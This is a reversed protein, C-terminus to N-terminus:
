APQPAPPPSGSPPPEEPPPKRQNKWRDELDEPSGPIKALHAFQKERPHYQKFMQRLPEIAVHTYIATSDLSEHGLQRQVFPLVDKRHRAGEDLWDTASTHRISYLAIRKGFKQQFRPVYAVAFHTQLANRSLKGGTASVFFPDTPKRPGLWAEMRILYQRLDQVTYRDVTVVRDRLNKPRRIAIQRNALSVDSRLLQCLEGPRMASAYLVQFICRDRMKMLTSGSALGLLFKFESESLIPRPLSRGRRPPDIALAPNAELHKYDSLFGFWLIAVRLVDERTAPSLPSAAVAAQYAELHERTIENIRSASHARLFEILRNIHIKCVTARGRSVAKVSLLYDLYRDRAEELPLPRTAPGSAAPTPGTM